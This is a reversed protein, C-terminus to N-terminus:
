SMLVPRSAPIYVCHRHFSTSRLKIAAALAASHLRASIDSSAGQSPHGPARTGGTEAGPREGGERAECSALRLRHEGPRRPRQRRVDLKKPRPGAPAPETRQHQQQPASPRRRPVPAVRGAPQACVRDRFRDSIRRARPRSTRRVLRPVRRRRKEVQRSPRDGEEKAVSGRHVTQNPVSRRNEISCREGTESRIRAGQFLLACTLVAPLKPSRTMRTSITTFSTRTPSSTAPTATCSSMSPPATTASPSSPVGPLARRPLECFRHVRKEPAPWTVM